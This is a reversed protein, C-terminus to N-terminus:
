GNSAEGIKLIANDILRTNGVYAALALVVEGAEVSQFTTPDVLEVYDIRVGVNELVSRAAQKIQSASAGSNSAQKGAKLAGSLALAQQHEVDSLYANRSSLALGDEGRVIPAGVIQIPMDLDRVMQRILALQQADKQGFVAVDAGTLNFMKHVVLLVGAFHTPRTKGELVTATPGPNITVAAEGPYMENAAPAFVLDAGVKAVAKLDADLDRPYKDFDEGPAFQTPNVFVTVMVHDAHKKAEKVLSLHGDHLAGMTMVLGLRGPLKALAARLEERTKVVQPEM